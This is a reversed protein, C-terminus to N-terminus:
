ARFIASAIVRNRSKFEDNGVSVLGGRDPAIIGSLDTLELM